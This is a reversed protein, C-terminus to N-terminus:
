ASVLLCSIKVFLTIPIGFNYKSLIFFFCFYIILNLLFLLVIIFFYCFCSFYFSDYTKTSRSLVLCIQHNKEIENNRRCNLLSLLSVGKKQHKSLCNSHLTAYLHLFICSIKYFFVFFLLHLRHFSRIKNKCEIFPENFKIQHTKQKLGKFTHVYMNRSIEFLLM